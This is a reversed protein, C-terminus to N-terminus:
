QESIIIYVIDSNSNYRVIGTNGNENGDLDADLRQIAKAPVKNLELYKYNKNVEPTTVPLSDNEVGVNNKFTYTGGWPNKSPWKELYDTVFAPNANTAPTTAWQGNDAYHGLAATKIAKYDSEATAVKSKEIAKFANPAIIAALIAIIAIVVLLEVLTFGKKINKM